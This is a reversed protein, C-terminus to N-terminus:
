RKHNRDKSLKNKEHIHTHQPKVSEEINKSMSNKNLNEKEITPSIYYEDFVSFQCEYYFLHFVLPMLFVCCCEM